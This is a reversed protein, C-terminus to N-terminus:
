RTPGLLFHFEGSICRVQLVVGVQQMELSVQLKTHGPNAAGTPTLIKVGGEEDLQQIKNELTDRQQQARRIRGQLRAIEELDSPDGGELRRLERRARVLSRTMEESTAAIRARSPDELRLQPAGGTTSVMVARVLPLEGDPDEITGLVCHAPMSSMEPFQFTQLKWGHVEQTTATAPVGHCVLALVGWELRLFLERSNKRTIVAVTALITSAPRDLVSRKVPIVIEPGGGLSRALLRVQLSSGVQISLQHKGPPLLVGSWLIPLPTELLCGGPIESIGPRTLDPLAPVVEPCDPLQVSVEVSGVRASSTLSDPAEQPQALLLRPSLLSIAVLWIMPLWIKPLWIKPLWIMPLWTSPTAYKMFEM